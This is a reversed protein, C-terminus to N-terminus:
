VLTVGDLVDREVWTGNTRVYFDERDKVLRFIAQGVSVYTNGLVEKMRNGAINCLGGIDDAVKWTDGDLFGYNGAVAYYYKEGDTWVNAGNFDDLGNWTKTEWTDGNLVYHEQTGLSYYINYGDTWINVGNPDNVGNWTKTEWTDGNLVYNDGFLSYYINHGDTWLGDPDWYEFTGNFTKKEWTDGNLVYQEDFALSCYIDHGDTWIWKGDIGSFGNWEKIEWANGNLVHNGFRNGDSYYINHGDTWLFGAPFALNYDPPLFNEWNMFRWKPGKQKVIALSGEPADDPLEKVSAANYVMPVNIDIKMNKDCYTGETNLTVGEQSALVINLLSSM